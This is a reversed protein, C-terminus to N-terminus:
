TGAIHMIRTDTRYHELMETCFDFFEPTPKTDDELIIGEEVHDFFWTIAESVARGCGLHQGRFLTKVECDWDVKTVIERTAACKEDEGVRDKRAADAAIFLKRPKAKRIEDFVKETLVPRNFILFLVPPTQYVM